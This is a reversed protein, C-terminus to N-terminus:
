HLTMRSIKKFSVLLGGGTNGSKNGFLGGGTNGSNGGDAIVNGLFFVKNSKGIPIRVEKCHFVQCDEVLTKNDVLSDEEELTIITEWSLAAM